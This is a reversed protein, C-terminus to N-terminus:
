LSEPLQVRVSPESGPGDHEDSGFVACPLEVLADGGEPEERWDNVASQVGETAGEDTSTAAPPEFPGMLHATRSATDLPPGFAVPRRPELGHREMDEQQASFQLLKIKKLPGRREVGYIAQRLVCTAGNPLKKVTM